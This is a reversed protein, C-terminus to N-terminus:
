VVSVVTLVQATIASPCEPKLQSVMVKSQGLIDYFGERDQRGLNEVGGPLDGSYSLTGVLRFHELEGTRESEVPSIAATMNQLIPDPFLFWEDTYYSILKGLVLARHYREAFFPKAECETEISYGIM